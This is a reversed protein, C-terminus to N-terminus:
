TVQAGDRGVKTGLWRVSGRGWNRWNDLASRHGHASSHQRRELQGRPCVGRELIASQLAQPLTIGADQLEKVATQVTAKPMKAIPEKMLKGAQVCPDHHEGVLIKDVDASAIRRQVLDFRDEDLVLCARLHKYRRFRADLSLRITSSGDDSDRTREQANQRAATTGGFQPMTEHVPTLIRCRGLSLLLCRRLTTSM